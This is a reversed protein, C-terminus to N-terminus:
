TETNNEHLVRGDRHGWSAAVRIRDPTAPPDAKHYQQVHRRHCWQYTWWGFRQTLCVGDLVSALLDETQPRDPALHLYTFLIQSPKLMKREAAQPEKVKVVMDAAEFVAAASVVIKAGAREYEADDVGIGAGAGTQVLVEHGRHVGERVSTPAMGVRYEHVKIEKPVGIRM